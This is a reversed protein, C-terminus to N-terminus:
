LWCALVFGVSAAETLGAAMCTLISDDLVHVGRVIVGEWGGACRGLGFWSVEWGVRECRVLQVWLKCAV